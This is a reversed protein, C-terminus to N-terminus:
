PSVVADTSLIHHNHGEASIGCPAATFWEHRDNLWHGDKKKKQPKLDTQQKITNQLETQDKM